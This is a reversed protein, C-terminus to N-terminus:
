KPAVVSPKWFELAETMETKPADLFAIEGSSFQGLLGWSSGIPRIICGNESYLPGRKNAIWTHPPPTSSQQM